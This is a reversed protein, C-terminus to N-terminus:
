IDVGFNFLKVLPISHEALYWTVQPYRTCISSFFHCGFKNRPEYLKNVEYNTSIISLKTVQNFIIICRGVVIELLHISLDEQM